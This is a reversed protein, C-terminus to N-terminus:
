VCGRWRRVHEPGKLGVAGVGGGANRLRREWVQPSGWAIEWGEGWCGAAICSFGVGGSGIAADGAVQLDGEGRELGKRLRLLIQRLIGCNAQRQRMRVGRTRDIQIGGWKRHHLRGERSDARGVKEVMCDREVIVLSDAGKKRKDRLAGSEFGV